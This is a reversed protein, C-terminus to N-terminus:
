LRNAYPITKGGVVHFYSGQDRLSKGPEGHRRVVTRNGLPHVTVNWDRSREELLVEIISDLHQTFRQGDMLVVRDAVKPPDIDNFGEDIRNFPEFEKDIEM